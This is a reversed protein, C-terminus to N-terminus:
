QFLHEGRIIYRISIVFLTSSLVLSIIKRVRPKKEKVRWTTILEFTDQAVWFLAILAIAIDM